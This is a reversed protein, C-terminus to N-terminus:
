LPTLHFARIPQAVGVGGSAGTPAFIGAEDFFKDCGDRAVGKCVRGRQNTLAIRPPNNETRSKRSPRQGPPTIFSSQRAAGRSPQRHGSSVPRCTSFREATLTM